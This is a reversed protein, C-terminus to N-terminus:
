LLQVFRKTSAAIPRLQHFANVNGLRIAPLSWQANRGDLIPNHLHRHQQHQLRDELRVEDVARVPETRAARRMVSQGLNPLMEFGSPPFHM